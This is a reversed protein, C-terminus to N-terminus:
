NATLFLLCSLCWAPFSASAGSAITTSDTTVPWLSSVAGARRCLSFSRCPRTAGCTPRWCCSGDPRWISGFVTWSARCRQRESWCSRWFWTLFCRRLGCLRYWIMATIPWWNTDHWCRGGPSAGSVKGFSKIGQLLVLFVLAWAVLLCLALDWRISGLEEIGPSIHLIHNSCGNSFFFFMWFIILWAGNFPTPVAVLVSSDKSSINMLQCNRSVAASSLATPFSLPIRCCRLATAWRRRYAVAQKTNWVCVCVCVFFFSLSLFLSFNTLMGILWKGLWFCYCYYDNPIRCLKQFRRHSRMDSANWFNKTLVRTHHQLLFFFYFYINIRDATSVKLTGNTIVPRGRSSRRWLRGCIACHGRWWWTTIFASSSRFSLCGTAWDQPYCFFSFPHSDASNRGGGRGLLCFIPNGTAVALHCDFM